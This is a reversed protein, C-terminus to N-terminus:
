PALARWWAAELEAYARRERWTRPTGQQDPFRPYGLKSYDITFGRALHWEHAIAPDLLPKPLLTEVCRWLDRSPSGAIALAAAEVRWAHEPYIADLAAAGAAVREEYDCATM